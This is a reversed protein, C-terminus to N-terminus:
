LKFKFLLQLVKAWVPPTPANQRVLTIKSTMEQGQKWQHIIETARWTEAESTIGPINVTVCQHPKLWTKAPVQVTIQPNPEKCTNLIRNGEAQSIESSYIRERDVYHYLSVGYSNISNTDEYTDLIWRNGVFLLGDIWFTVDTEIPLETQVRFAIETVQSWDFNDAAGDTEEVWLNTAMRNPDSWIKYYTPVEITYNRNANWTRAMPNQSLWKIWYGNKDKLKVILYVNKDSRFIFRILRCYDKLDIGNAYGVATLDFKAEAVVYQGSPRNTSYVKICYEGKGQYKGDIEGFPKTDDDSVTTNPTAVSWAVPSTWKNVGQETFRDGDWPIGVDFSGEVRVVNIVDDLSDEYVLSYTPHQITIAPDATESGIPMFHIYKKGSKSDYYAYGDFSLIEAIERLAELLTQRSFNLKCEVNLATQSASESDLRIGTDYGSDPLVLFGEEGIIENDIVKKYTWKTQPNSAAQEKGYDRTIYDRNLRFLLNKCTLTAFVKETGEVFEFKRGWVKGFFIQDTVGRIDVDIKIWSFLPINLINSPVGFVKIEAIGVRSLGYDEVRFSKVSSTIINWAGDMYYSIELDPNETTGM